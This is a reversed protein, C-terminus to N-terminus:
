HHCLWYFALFMFIVYQQLECQGQDPGGDQARDEIENRKNVYGAYHTDHHWKYTEEDMADKAKDYAFPITKIAHDAENNSLINGWEM